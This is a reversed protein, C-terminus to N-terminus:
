HAMCGHGMGEEHWGFSPNYNNNEWYFNLRKKPENGIQNMTSADYLRGNVQRKYV